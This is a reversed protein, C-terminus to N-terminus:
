MAFAERALCWWNLKEVHPEGLVIRRRLDLVFVNTKIRTTIETFTLLYEVEELICTVVNLVGSGSMGMLITRDLLWM